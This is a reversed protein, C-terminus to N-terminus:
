KKASKAQILKDYFDPDRNKIIELVRPSYYIDKKFLLQSGHVKISGDENM